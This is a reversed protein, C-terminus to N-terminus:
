GAMHGLREAVSVAKGAVEPASIDPHGLGVKLGVFVSPLTYAGM